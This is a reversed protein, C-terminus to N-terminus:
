NYFFQDVKLKLKQHIDTEKPYQLEELLRLFLDAVIPFGLALLLFGSIMILAGVCSIWQTHLPHKQLATTTQYGYHITWLLLAMAILAVTVHLTTARAGSSTTNPSM